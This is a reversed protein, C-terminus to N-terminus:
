QRQGVEADTLARSSYFSSYLINFFIIIIQWDNQFAVDFIESISHPGEQPSTSGAQLPIFHFFIQNSIIYVM